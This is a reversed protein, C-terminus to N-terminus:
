KATAVDVFNFYNGGETIEFDTSTEAPNMMGGQGRGGQGNQGRGGEGRGGNPREMGEPMEPRIAGEPMQSKQGGEPMVM